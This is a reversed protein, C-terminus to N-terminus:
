TKIYIYYFTFIYNAYLNNELPITKIYIYYFTFLKSPIGCKNKALKLIFITSHLNSYDTIYLIYFLYYTKIYIYYFTFSFTELRNEDIMFTKIYIYYFTFREGILFNLM